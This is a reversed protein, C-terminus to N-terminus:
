TAVQVRTCTTREVGVASPRAVRRGQNAPHHSPQLASGPPRFGSRHVVIQRIVRRPRGGTTHAIVVIIVRGVGSSTARCRTSSSGTGVRGGRTVARSLSADVKGGTETNM